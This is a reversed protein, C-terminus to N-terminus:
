ASLLQLATFLKKKPVKGHSKHKEIRREVESAMAYIEEPTSIEAADIMQQLTMKFATKKNIM